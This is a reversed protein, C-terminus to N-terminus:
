KRFTEGDWKYFEFDSDPFNDNFVSMPYEKKFALTPIGDRITFYVNKDDFKEFVKVFGEKKKLWVEVERSHAGCNWLLILDLTRDGNVDYLIFDPYYETNRFEKVVNNDRDMVLLLGEPLRGTEPSSWYQLSFYKREAWDTDYQKVVYEKGKYMLYLKGSSKKFYIEPSDQAFTITGSLLSFLLAIKTIKVARMKIILEM